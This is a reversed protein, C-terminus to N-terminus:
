YKWFAKSESVLKEIPIKEKYQLLCFVRESKNVIDTNSINVNKYPPPLSALDDDYKIHSVLRLTPTPWQFCHTLVQIQRQTSQILNYLYPSSLSFSFYIKVIFASFSLFSNSKFTTNRKM